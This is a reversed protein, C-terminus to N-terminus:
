ARRPLKALLDRLRQRSYENPFDRVRDRAEASFCASAPPLDNDGDAYFKLAERLCDGSEIKLSRKRAAADQREALEVLAASLAVWDTVDLIRSPADAPNLEDLTPFDIEFRETLSAQCSACYATLEVPESGSTEAGDSGSASDSLSGARDAHMPGLGCQPCTQAFLYLKAESLTHAHLTRM